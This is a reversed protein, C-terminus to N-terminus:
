LSYRELVADWRFIYPAPLRQRKEYRAVNQLLPM